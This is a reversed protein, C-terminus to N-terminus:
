SSFHLGTVSRCYISPKRASGVRSRPRTPEDHEHEYIREDNSSV